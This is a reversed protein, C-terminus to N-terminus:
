GNSPYVKWYPLDEEWCCDVHRVIHYLLEFYGTARVCVLLIRNCSFMCPSHRSHKGNESHLHLRLTKITVLRVVDSMAFKAYHNM